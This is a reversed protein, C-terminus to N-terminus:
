KKTKSNYYFKESCKILIKKENIQMQINFNSSKINDKIKNAFFNFENKLKNKPIHFM